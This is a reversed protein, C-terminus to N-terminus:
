KPVVDLKAELELLVEWRVQSRARELDTTALRPNNEVLIERLLREPILRHRKINQRQWAAFAIEMTELSSDQDHAYRIAQNPCHTCAILAYATVPDTRGFTRIPTNGCIRCAHLAVDMDDERRAQLLAAEAAQTRIGM